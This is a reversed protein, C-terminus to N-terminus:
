ETTDSEKGGWPRLGGPEEIWPLEGPLFIPTPEWAMRWPIKGVWTEQMASPNVVMHAM